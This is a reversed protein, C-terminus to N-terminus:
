EYRLAILPDVKTARQAPVFCAFLAVAALLISVGVFTVMDTASVGYLVTALVRTLAFAALLGLAIGCFALKMGHGIILKRVGGPQAGLAMRIGIEHTRSNVLFAMVGYLGTAALVLTLVAFASSLSALLKAPALPLRMHEQMTKVDTLPLNPDLAKVESRLQSIAAVPSGVTSVHVTLASNFRQSLPRYAFFLPKEALQEYKIDRAVGVVEIYDGKSDMKFRKGIANGRADLRRALTENVVAVGPSTATDRNDFDRGQLLAIGMTRFYDTSVATHQLLSSEDIQEYNAAEGEVYLPSTSGGGRLPVSEALAASRVPASARLRDLLQQEFLKSKTRDYGALDLDFSAMLGNEIAFGPDAHQTNRLNRIFLGAAVLLLVSVSIQAVVLLNRLSLRRGARFIVKEDKLAAVVNPRSSQLAPLLGFIVGTALSLILTYGFVRVDPTVDPAISNEGLVGSLLAVSLDTGWFALLLGALGGLVSLLLSETLMQQTIRWRGAGLALRVAIEKRRNVARALLMNAVNACAVLLVLSVVTMLAVAITITPARGQPPAMLGRAEVVAVARGGPEEPGSHREKREQHLTAALMAVAAQAGSLQADSRLRGMMMLWGSDPQSLAQSGSNAIPEMTLPVWMDPPSIVTAGAFKEPMVGIITFPQQNLNVSKGIASPDSNFSRRWLNHSIVVVPRTGISRDEEASFSRGLVPNAKLVEFYNGSVFEGYVRESQGNIVLSLPRQAYAALGAFETVRDRYRVYDPYSISQGDWVRALQNPEPFPLPRFLAANVFSFLTTNIGIGLAISVVSVATFGPNKALMRMAYRLDQLLTAM